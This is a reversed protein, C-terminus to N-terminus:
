PLVERVHILEWGADTLADEDDKSEHSYFKKGPDIWLKWERPLRQELMLDEPSDREALFRGDSHFRTLVGDGENIAIVSGEVLPDFVGVAICQWIDGNRSQYKKGPELQM